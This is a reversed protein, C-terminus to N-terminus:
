LFSEGSCAKINKVVGGGWGLLFKQIFTHVGSCYDIM